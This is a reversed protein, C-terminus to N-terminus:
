LEYKFRGDWIRTFCLRNTNNGRNYEKYKSKYDLGFYVSSSPTLDLMSCLKIQKNHYKNYIYDATFTNMLGTGLRASLLNIYNYYPENVVTMQDEFIDKQLRIGIRFNEVPFVKSLSSVIYKICKHDLNLTLGKSINLYALDLMVPVNLEDCSNLMSELYSPINGTDSFPVSILVFDGEEIPEDEIWAFKVYDSYIGKLMQHFFYEGKAIRLRKYPLYRLYYLYFSERTGNSFCGLNYKEDGNINHTSFMWKKYTKIYENKIKEANEKDYFNKLTFSNILSDRANCTEDDYISYAGGFPKDKNDPLDTYRKSM